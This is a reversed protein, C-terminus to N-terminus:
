DQRSFTRGLVPSIGLVPLLGDTVDLATEQEPEGVGTISVSDNQYIGIDAFTRSQERYIFYNSPSMNLEPINVGPATHWVGVLEEPHPYPLPKLLIGEVVSFVATNAGVGAALMLLTIFTFLPARRLRRFIQKLQSSFSEM